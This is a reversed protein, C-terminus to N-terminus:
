KKCEFDSLDPTSTTQVPPLRIGYKGFHWMLFASAIQSGGILFAVISSTIFADSSKYLSADYTVKSLVDRKYNEIRSQVVSYIIIFLGYVILSSILYWLTKKGLSRSVFFGFLGTGLWMLGLIVGFGILLGYCDYKVEGGEKMEKFWGRLM